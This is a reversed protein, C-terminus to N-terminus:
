ARMRSGTPDFLPESIRRAPRREGIIEIEWDGPGSGKSLLRSPVYGMAHSCGVHHCYGGSTVWGVVKGNHWIPEDGIADADNADVVFCVRQRQPGETCERLAADRGIFDGKGFDVFRELGAEAPGYIPRFERAWTGFNKERALSLLARTGFPRLGQAAGAKWLAEFLPVQYEPDVWVEYGLDGTFSIRGVMAPILGIVMHPRFDMFRFASGSVDRDALATLVDRSKPGVLALGALKM